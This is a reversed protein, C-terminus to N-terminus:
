ISARYPTDRTGSEKRREHLCPMASGGLGTQLGLRAPLSRDGPASETNCRSLWNNPKNPNTKPSDRQLCLVFQTQEAIKRQGSIAFNVVSPVASSRRYVRIDRDRQVRPDHMVSCISPIPSEQLSCTSPVYSCTQASELLNWSSKKRMSGPGGWGSRAYRASDLSVSTKARINNIRRSRLSHSRAVAKQLASKRTWAGRQCGRVLTRGRGSGDCM